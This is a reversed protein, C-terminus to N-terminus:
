CFGGSFRPRARTFGDSAASTAKTIAEELVGAYMAVRDPNAWPVDAMAMMAAKCGAAIAKRYQSYLWDDIGASAVSPKAAAKIKIAGTAAAAPAPVLMVETAAQQTYHEPTGTAATWDSYVGDLYAPSRPTVKEGSFWVSVIEVLDTGSPMALEYAMQSEVADILDLDVVCAKTRECFEISANRLYHDVMPLPAGPLEPLVDPYFASWAKM